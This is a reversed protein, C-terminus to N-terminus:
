KEGKIIYGANVADNFDHGVEPPIVYGGNIAAAAARAYREGVGSLDNDGAIVIEAEPRKARVLLAVTKLNGADFAVFTQLGLAEFLSCGTAYGECVLVTSTSEGFWFFCGKKQGGTLFRKIGDPQIFQLNVIEVKENFLPVILNGSNGTKAGYPQISKRQCYKNTVDAYVAKSWIRRAKTAAQQRIEIQEKQRELKATEIAQIDAKSLRMKRDDARWKFRLGTKFDMAWGAPVGDPYLCYAGNKSGSRHGDIHIRHLKGDAVIEDGLAIGSSLVMEKFRNEIDMM